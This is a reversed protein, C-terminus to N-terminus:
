NASAHDLRAPLFRVLLIPRLDIIEKTGWEHELDVFGERGPEVAVVDAAVLSRLAPPL